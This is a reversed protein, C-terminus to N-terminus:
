EDKPKRHRRRWYWDSDRTCSMEKGCAYCYAMFIATIRGLIWKAGTARACWFCIPKKNDGM